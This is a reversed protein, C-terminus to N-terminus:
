QEFVSLINENSRSLNVLFFHPAKAEMREVVPGVDSPGMLVNNENVFIRPGSYNGERTWKGIGL